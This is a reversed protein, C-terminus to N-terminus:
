PKKIPFMCCYLQLMKSTFIYEGMEEGSRLVNLKKMRQLFNNFKKKEDTSLGKEVSAKKFSLDFVKEGLMTLISHYAPSRLAKYIQQDVFKRGIEKVAQVVAMVADNRDIKNDKDLWFAQEGIVHM